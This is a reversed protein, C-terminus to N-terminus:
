RCPAEWAVYQAAMETTTTYTVTGADRLPDATNTLFADIDVLDADFGGDVMYATFGEPSGPGFGDVHEIFYWTNVFDPRARALAQSLRREAFNAFRAHDNERVATGPLYVVPGEPTPVEFAGEDADGTGDAPRWPQTTALALEAQTVSNKFASLSIVGDNAVTEWVGEAFGGNMDTLTIGAQGAVASAARVANDVGADGGSAHFHFSWGMGEDARAAFWEPDWKTTAAIFTADPQLTLRAGHTALMGSLGAVVQARSEWQEVSAMLSPQEEIHLLFGLALPAAAPAPDRVWQTGSIRVGSLTAMGADDVEVVATVRETNSMMSFVDALAVTQGSHLVVKAVISPEGGSTVDLILLRAESTSTISGSLSYESKNLVFDSRASGPGTVTITDVPMTADHAPTLVVADDVAAWSASAAAFREEAELTPAWQPWAEQTCAPAPEASDAPPDVPAGDCGVLLLGVVSIGLGGSRRARQRQREHRRESM